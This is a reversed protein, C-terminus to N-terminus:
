GPWIANVTVLIAGIFAGLIYGLRIITRLERDTVRRVIEEMKQTPFELVKEEVRRAVDIREVVDPVQTQLWEWIPDAVARELRVAIGDPFWDAPKGIPRDMIGDVLRTAAERYIVSAPQSRAAVTIWDAIKESPVKGFVEGWTRTGARDMAQELKEVLFARTAPDQAVGVAWQTLTRRAEVVTDDDAAGLVSVVPRRLFDVVAENVGKAMAAQVAPDRLMESLREAGETEITELVRDVTEETMLVKAVVRQHFKLDGMFRQLTDHIFAEFRERAAADELLAGLREIALPLYGAVAKEFSGVLGLPLIDEFTRDPVLLKRSARDLYDEVADAFDESEVANGLWEDVASALAVERAPTLIEGIPEDAVTRLLDSARDQLNLEFRESHLHEHFRELGRNVVDDLIEDLGERMSPPVLERLPGREVHLLQELFSALRDDFAARFEQDTFIRTLDDETLLRTGVTRGIAAALRPQNKPIAGQLMGIRWRWIRPSEYPHFLMWIAVTNTIGGALAGFAITVLARLLEESV